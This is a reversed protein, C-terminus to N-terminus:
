ILKILDSCRLGNRTCAGESNSGAEEGAKIRARLDDVQGVGSPTVVNGQSLRDTDFDLSIPVKVLLCDTKVKLTHLFVDLHTLAKNSFRYLRESVKM